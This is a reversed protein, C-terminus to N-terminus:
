GRMLPVFTVTIYIAILGAVALTHRRPLRWEPGTFDTWLRRGAFLAAAIGGAVCAVTIMRMIGTWGQAILGSLAGLGVAEMATKITAVWILLVFMRTHASRREDNSIAVRRSLLVALLLASTLDILWGRFAIYLSKEADLAIAGSWETFVPLRRPLFPYNYAIFFFSCTFIAAAVVLSRYAADTPASRYDKGPPVDATESTTSKAAIAV